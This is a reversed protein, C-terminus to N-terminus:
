ATAGRLSRNALNFADRFTAYQEKPVESLYRHALVKGNWVIRGKDVGVVFMTEPHKRWQTLKGDAIMNRLVEPLEVSEVRAIANEEREIAQETKKISESAVRLANNQAEWRKLTSAGCRKDNLPQGNASRVDSFHAEIRADFTNNKKELSSQLVALRKSM